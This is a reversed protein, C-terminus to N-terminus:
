EKSQYGICQNDRVSAQYMTTALGSHFSKFLDGFSTWYKHVAGNHLLRLIMKTPCVDRSVMGAFIVAVILM